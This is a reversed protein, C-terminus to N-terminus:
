RHLTWLLPVGPRKRAVWPLVCVGQGKRDTEIVHCWEQHSAVVVTSVTLLKCSFDTILELHKMDLNFSKFASKAKVNMEKASKPNNLFYKVHLKPLSWALEPTYNLSIWFIKTNRFTHVVGNLKTILLTVLFNRLHFIIRTITTHHRTAPPPM